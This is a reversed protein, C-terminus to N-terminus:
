AVAMCNVIENANDSSTCRRSDCVMSRDRIQICEDLLKSACIKQRRRRRIRKRALKRIQAVEM